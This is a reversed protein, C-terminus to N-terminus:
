NALLASPIINWVKTDSSKRFIISESPALYPTGVTSKNPGTIFANIFKKSVRGAAIARHPANIRDIELDIVDNHIMAISSYAIVVFLALLYSVLGEDPNGFWIGAVTMASIMFINLPRVMRFLDVIIM